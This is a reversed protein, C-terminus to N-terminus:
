LWLDPRSRRALRMAYRHRDRPSSNFNGTIATRRRGEEMRKPSSSHTVAFPDQATLGYQRLMRVLVGVMAVVVRAVMVDM